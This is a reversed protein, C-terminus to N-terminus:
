IRSDPDLHEVATVELNWVNQFINMVIWFDKVQFVGCKCFHSSYSSVFTLSWREIEPMDM